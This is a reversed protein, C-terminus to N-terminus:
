RTYGECNAVHNLILNQCALVKLLEEGQHVAVLTVNSFVPHVFEQPNDSADTARPLQAKLGNIGISDVGVPHLVRNLLDPSINMRFIIIHRLRCLLLDNGHIFSLTWQLQLPHSM